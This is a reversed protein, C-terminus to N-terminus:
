LPDGSVSATTARLHLTEKHNWTFSSDRPAKVTYLIKLCGM